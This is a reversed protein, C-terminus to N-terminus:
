KELRVKAGVRRESAIIAELEGLMLLVEDATNYHCM